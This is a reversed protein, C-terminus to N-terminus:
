KHVSILADHKKQLQRILYEMEQVRGSELVRFRELADKSCELAEALLGRQEFLRAKKQLLFPIQGELGLQKSLDFALNIYEEALDLKGWALFLNGLRSTTTAINRDDNNEKFYTLQEELLNLAEPYEQLQRLVSTLSGQAELLLDSNKSIKAAEISKQLWQKAEQLNGKERLAIGLHWSSIAIDESITTKQALCVSERARAEAEDFEHREYHIRSIPRALLRCQASQNNVSEAMKLAKTAYEFGHQWFGMDLFFSTKSLGEVLSIVMNPMNNNYCWDVVSLVTHYEDIIETHMNGMQEILKSYHDAANEYLETLRGSMERSTLSEVFQRTLHLIAFRNDHPRILFMDVLEPVTVKMLNHMDVGSISSLSTRSVPDTFITMAQLVRKTNPTLLKFSNEFCFQCLDTDGVDYLNDLAINIDNHIKAQGIVWQMALPSGDTLEAIKKLLSDHANTVIQIDKERAESRMFDVAEDGEMGGVNIIRGDKGPFIVRSTVIAKSGGPLSSLFRVFKDPEEITEFDDIIVLCRKEELKRDIVRIKVDMEMRYATEGLLVEGIVDYFKHITTVLPTVESFRQSYQPHYPKLERKKASAWIIADFYKQESCLWSVENAIATKGIGGYGQFVVLWQRSDPRLADM